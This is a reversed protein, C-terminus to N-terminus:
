AGFLSVSLHIREGAVTLPSVTYRDPDGLLYGRADHKAAERGFALVMCHMNGSTVLFLIEHTM